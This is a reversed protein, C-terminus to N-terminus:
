RSEPPRFTSSGITSDVTSAIISLAASLNALNYLNFFGDDFRKDLSYKIFGSFSDLSYTIFSGSSNLRYTIFGGSSNFSRHDLRPRLM